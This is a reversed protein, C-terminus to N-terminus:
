LEVNKDRFGAKYLDKATATNIDLVVNIYEGYHSSNKDNVRAVSRFWAQKYVNAFINSGAMAKKFLSETYRKYNARSKLYSSKSIKKRNVLMKMKYLEKYNARAKNDMTVYHTDELLIRYMTKKDNPYKEVFINFFSMFDKPCELMVTVCKEFSANITRSVLIDYFLGAIVGESAMLQSGNKLNGTKKNIPSNWIYKDKRMPNQRSNFFEIMKSRKNKRLRFRRNRLGYIAEFGEAWGEKYALSRDTILDTSHDAGNVDRLYQFSSGYMDSMIGHANEHCFILALFDDKMINKISFGRGTVGALFVSNTDVSIQKNTRPNKVVISRADLHPSPNRKNVDYYQLMVIIPSKISSALYALVSDKTKKDWQKFKDINKLFYKYRISRATRRLLISDSVATNKLLYPLVKKAEFSSGEVPTCIVASPTTSFQAFGPNNVPETEASANKVIPKVVLLGSNKRQASSDATLTLCAILILLGLRLKQNIKM